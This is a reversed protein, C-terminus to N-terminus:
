LDGKCSHQPPIEWRCLRRLRLRRMTGMSALLNRWSHWYTIIATWCVAWTRNGTPFSLSRSKRSCLICGSCTSWGMGSTLLLIFSKPKLKHTYTRSSAHGRKDRHRAKYKYHTARGRRRKQHKQKTIVGQKLARTRYCLETRVVHPRCSDSRYVTRGTAKSATVM